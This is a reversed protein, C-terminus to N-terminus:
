GGSRERKNAVLQEYTLGLPEPEPYEGEKFCESCIWKRSPPSSVQRHVFCSTERYHQTMEEDSDGGKVGCVTCTWLNVPPMCDFTAGYRKEHRECAM